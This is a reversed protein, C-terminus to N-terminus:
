HSAEANVEIRQTSQGQPIVDLQFSISQGIALSQAIHQTRFGTVQQRDNFLTVVVSINHVSQKDSNTLVGTIYYVEDRKDYQVNSVTVEAIQNQKELSVPTGNILMALPGVAHEPMSDFLVGYPSRMGPFLVKHATSIEQEVVADGNITVLYVSLNIHELTLSGVNRVLGFCWVSGVPTEYCTPPDVILPLPTGVMALATGSPRLTPTRLLRLVSTSKFTPTSFTLLVQTPTTTGVLTHGCGALFVTFCCWLWYIQGSSRV